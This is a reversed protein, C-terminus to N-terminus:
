SALAPRNPALHAPTLGRATIDAPANDGNLLAAGLRAAAPATQIGFGGQGAFWFFNQVEADFGIVFNRDPAFTRLGAWSTTVNRAALTTAQNIEDLARAIELPDASADVPPTPTEEAPSCLFQLGEPKLYFSQDLDGFIPLDTTNLQEPAKVMFITRRMPILGAQRVGAHDAVQDAWAGAANVVIAATATTGDALTVHWQDHDRTLATVAANKRIEGGRARLGRVYGQHLAHVDLERATPDYIGNEVYGPRAIPVRAEVEEATLLETSPVLPLVDRHLQETVAGRGPKAFMLMPRPSTLASEFFEPPHEFFDRSAATLARIEPGGPTALFTAASRGTTHFALTSEREFLGVRREGALEYALSVGAIGGGIVIVDYGSEAQIM